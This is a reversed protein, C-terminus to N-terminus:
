LLLETLRCQLPLRVKYHIDAVKNLCTYAALRVRADACITAECIMQAGYKM